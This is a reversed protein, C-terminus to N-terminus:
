IIFRLFTQDYTAQAEEFGGGEGGGVLRLFCGVYRSVMVPKRAIYDYVLPFSATLRRPPTNKCQVKVGVYVIKREVSGKAGYSAILGLLNQRSIRVIWNCSRM